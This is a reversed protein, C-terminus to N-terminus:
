CLASKDYVTQLGAVVTLSARAAGFNNVKAANAPWVLLAGFNRQYKAESWNNKHVEYGLVENGRNSTNGYLLARTPTFQMDREAFHAGDLFVDLESGPLPDDSWHIRFEHPGQAVTDTFETIGGGQDVFQAFVITNGPMHRFGFRVKGLEGAAEYLGIWEETVSGAELFPLYGSSMVAQVRTYRNGSAASILSGIYRTVNDNPENPNCPM